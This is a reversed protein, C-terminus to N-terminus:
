PKVGAKDYSDQDRFITIEQRQEPKLLYKSSGADIQVSPRETPQDLPGAINKPGDILRQDGIQLRAAFQEHIFRGDWQQDGSQALSLGAVCPRHTTVIPTPMSIQRRGDREASLAGITSSNNRYRSCSLVWIM